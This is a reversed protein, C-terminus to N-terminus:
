CPSAPRCAKEPLDSVCGLGDPDKERVEELQRGKVKHPKIRVSM